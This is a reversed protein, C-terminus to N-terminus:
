NIKILWTGDGKAAVRRVSIKVQANNNRTLAALTERLFREDQGRVRKM